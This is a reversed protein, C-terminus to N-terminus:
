KLHDRISYTMVTGLAWLALLGLFLLISNILRRPYIAEQPKSPPKFVALYRQQRDAEARSRELGALATTYAQQAFDQEVVLEEYNALLSSLSSLRDSGRATQSLERRASTKGSIENRKYIIQDILVAERKRLQRITPSSENIIGVLTALRSRTELLQKELGGILEIQVEANKTPDISSEASRFDSMRRRVMKLRLEARLVEEEAFKVADKRANQSLTNVLEAGYSLVQTAIHETMEPTFAQVEVEIISSTNDFSTTIMTQWYDVFEEISITPDLRYIFDISGESFHKVIGVDNSLREVVERGELYNMLIFSDTTTTGVSALGTLAGLFDGGASSGDMGRVSFGITSSYRDSAIFLFYTSGLLGPIVVLLAFSLALIRRRLQQPRLGHLRFFGIRVPKVVQETNDVPLTFIAAAKKSAKGKSNASRPTVRAEGQQQGVTSIKPALATASPIEALKATTGKEM